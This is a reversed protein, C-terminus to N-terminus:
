IIFLLNVGVKSFHRIWAIKMMKCIEGNWFEVNKVHFARILMLIRTFNCTEGYSSVSLIYLKNSNKYSLTFLSLFGDTFIIRNVIEGRFTLVCSLMWYKWLFTKRKIESLFNRIFFQCSIFLTFFPLYFSVDKQVSFIHTM